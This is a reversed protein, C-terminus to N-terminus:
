RQSRAVGPTPPLKDLTWSREIVAQALLDTLWENYMNYKTQALTFEDVPRAADKELVELLHYGYTTKIPDSLKGPELSFAAQDFEPVMRGRGFWWLDGGEAASGPDDSYELALEAFDAGAGLKQQVEIIRVLAQAEDRPAPTPSASPDPTPTPQGTPAPTATPLPEIVRVLIHRARVQEETTPADKVVEEYLKEQLLDVEVLTRLDAETLGATTKVRALYDKYAKDFAEFTVPTPTPFPTATPPGGPTPSPEPSPTPAPTPPTRQYGFSREIALTVDDPSVTLGRKQAEQRILAEDIMQDLVQLGTGEPDTLQDGAQSWSFRVRKGYDNSAIRQGNVMAVPQRPKLVLEQIIGAGILSILLACVAILGIIVRRNREADRRKRATEKRTVERPAEKRRKAM